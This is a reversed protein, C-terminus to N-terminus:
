KRSDRPASLAVPAAFKPDSSNQTKAGGNTSAPAAIIRDGRGASDANPAVPKPTSVKEIKPAVTAAIPAVVTREDNEIQISSSAINGASPAVVKREGNGIQAGNPAIKGASPAIVPPEESASAASLTEDPSQIVPPAGIPDIKKAVSDQRKSILRDIFSVRGTSPNATQQPPAKPEDNQATRVVRENKRMSPAPETVSDRTGVMRENKQVSPTPEAVPKNGCLPREMHRFEQRPSNEAAVWERLKLRAEEPLNVFQIGADKRSEGVWVIKGSTEIPYGSGPIRFSLDSLEDASLSAVAQIYMGGESINLIIGGNSDGLDLYELSLVRRRPQSRREPIHSSSAEQPLEDAGAPPPQAAAKVRASKAEVLFLGPDAFISNLVKDKPLADPPLSRRAIAITQSLRDEAGLSKEGESFKNRTEPTDRHSPEQSIWSRIKGRTDETLDIFRVGAEKQSEAIWVIEGNAQIWEKSDPLQFRLKASAGVALTLAGIPAFVLGTESINFVFGYNNDGFKVFAQPTVPTRAHIRREGIALPKEAQRHDSM